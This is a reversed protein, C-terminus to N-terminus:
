VSMSCACGGPGCGGCGGGGGPVASMQSGESSTFAAFVSLQRDSEGDCVPCPADDNMRSIPRLREFQHDCATCTYEYIPMQGTRGM